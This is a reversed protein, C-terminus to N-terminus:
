TSARRSFPARSAVGAYPLPANRQRPSRGNWLLRHMGRVSWCGRKFRLIVNIFGQIMFDFFKACAAPNDAALMMRRWSSLEHGSLVGWDAGAGPDGSYARVLPNHIDSPNLTIFLTPSGRRNILARIENRRCIKYGTSGPVKKVVPALKALIKTIKKEGPSAANYFPDCEYLEALRTVETLDLSLMDRVTDSYSGLDVAFRLTSSVMKKRFINYFMLAFEPDRQFAQDNVQLLHGVQEEPSISRKRLPHRFGGIGWPDLHPFAWTLLYPNDFDPVMNSGKRSMLFKESALCRELAAMKMKLYSLPTEDGLTFGVNELLLGEVSNSEVFDSAEPLGASANDMCKSRELFGIKAADLLGTDHSGQFLGNLKEEDYGRFGPVVGYHPNHELLFEIVQKVRSKRVLVPHFKEVTSRTPEKDGVCIVCLTDEILEPGPPLVENVRVVDLPCVVINGKMGRRTRFVSSDLLATEEENRPVTSRCSISNTRVRSFLARDFITSEEIADKVKEPLREKAYYLWNALAFRPMQGRDLSQKCDFCINITGKSMQNDMGATSLIAGDYAELNYSRPQLHSPLDPNAVLRLDVDDADTSVVEFARLRKDCIACVVPRMRDWSCRSEWEQIIEQKLQDM